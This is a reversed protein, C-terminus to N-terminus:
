RRRLSFIHVSGAKEPGSRLVVKADTGEAHAGLTAKARTRAQSPTLMAAVGYNVRKGPELQVIFIM